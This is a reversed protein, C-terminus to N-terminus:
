EASRKKKFVWPFSPRSNTRAPPSPRSSSGFGRSLRPGRSSKGRGLDPSAEGNVLGHVDFGNLRDLLMGAQLHGGRNKPHTSLAKEALRRVDAQELQALYNNSAAINLLMACAQEQVSANDVYGMMAFVGATIALHEVAQRRNEEVGDTLNQLVRCGHAQISM